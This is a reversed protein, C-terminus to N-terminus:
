ELEDLYLDRKQRVNELLGLEELAVQNGSNAADGMYLIPNTKLILGGSLFYFCVALAGLVYLEQWVCLGGWVFGTFRFFNLLASVIEGAGSGRIHINYTRFARLQDKTLLRQFVPDITRGLSFNCAFFLIWLGYSVSIFTIASVQFSIIGTLAIIITLVVGAINGLMSGVGM